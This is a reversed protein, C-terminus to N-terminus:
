KVRMKLIDEMWEREEDSIPKELKKLFSITDKLDLQPTPKIKSAM